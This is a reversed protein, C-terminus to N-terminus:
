GSSALHYLNSILMAIFSGDSPSHHRTSACDTECPASVFEMDSVQVCSVALNQYPSADADEGIEKVADLISQLTELFTETRHYVM